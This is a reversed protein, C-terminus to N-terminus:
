SNCLGINPYLLISKLFPTSQSKKKQKKNKNRGETLNSKLIWSAKLFRCQIENDAFIKM